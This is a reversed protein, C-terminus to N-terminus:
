RGSPGMLGASEGSSPWERRAAEHERGVRISTM